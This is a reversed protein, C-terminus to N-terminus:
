PKGEDDDTSGKSETATPSPLATLAPFPKNDLSTCHMEMMRTRFTSSATPLNQSVLNVDVSATAEGDIGAPYDEMTLTTYPQTALSEVRGTQTTSSATITCEVKLTPTGTIWPHATQEWLAAATPDQATTYPMSVSRTSEFFGLLFTEATYTKNFKLRHDLGDGDSGYWGKQVDKAQDEFNHPQIHVNKQPTVLDVHPWYIGISPDDGPESDDRPELPSAGSPKVLFGLLPLLTIASVPVHALM